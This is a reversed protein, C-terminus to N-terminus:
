LEALDDQLPVNEVCRNRKGLTFVLVVIAAAQGM